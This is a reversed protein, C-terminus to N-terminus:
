RPCGQSLTAGHEKTVLLANHGIMLNEIALRRWQATGMPWSVMMVSDLDGAGDL